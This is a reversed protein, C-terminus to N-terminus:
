PLSGEIAPTPGDRPAAGGDQTPVLSRAPQGPAFIRWVRRNWDSEMLRILRPNGARFDPQDELLRVLVSELDGGAPPAAGDISRAPGSRLDFRWPEAIALRRFPFDRHAVVACGAQLAEPLVNPFGESTSALVVLSSERLRAALDAVCGHARLRPRRWRDPMTRNGYLDVQFRGRGLREIVHEINKVTDFDGVVAVKGDFPRLAPVPASLTNPLVRASRIRGLRRVFLRRLDASAFVFRCRLVVMLKQLAWALHARFERGARRAWTIEDGRVMYFVTLGPRLLKLLGVLPALLSTFIVIAVQGRRFDRSFVLRCLGSLSEIREACAKVNLADVLLDMRRRFGGETPWFHVIAYRRSM